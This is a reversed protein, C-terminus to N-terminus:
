EKLFVRQDPQTLLTVNAEGALKRSVDAADAPPLHMGIIRLPQISGRVFARGPEDLVYWFPLVGVQVRPLSRLASFNAADSDADGVHLVTQCGEILFGLHQEPLRRASHRLRLAHVAVGHVFTRLSQGPSPTLSVFRHAALGADARQVRQVIEASSVLVTGPSSRLQAAVAEASLHDEHWHTILVASVKDFPPQATEVARRQEATPIAYPPIGERIPADILFRSDETEFLVGANAVYRVACDRPLQAAPASPVHASWLLGLLPLGALCRNLVDKEV